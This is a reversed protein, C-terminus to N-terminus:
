PLQWLSPHLLIGTNMIHQNTSYIVNLDSTHPMGPPSTYDSFIAYRYDLGGTGVAYGGQSSFYKFGVIMAGDPYVTHETGTTDIFAIFVVAHSTGTTRNFNIFSGPTLDEFPVIEGMGFNCLADATGYSDLSANTWIHSKICNSGLLQWSEIPLFDFVGEDGSDSAYQQMTTLIVEMMAAVSMTRGGGTSFITGYPGYVINHTLVASDYGLLRYNAYLYDVSKMVIANANTPADPQHDSCSLFSIAIFFSLFAKYM